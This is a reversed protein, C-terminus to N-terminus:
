QISGNMMRAIANLQMAEPADPWVWLV